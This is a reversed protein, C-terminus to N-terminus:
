LGDVIGVNKNELKAVQNQLMDIIEAMAIMRKNLSVIEKELIMYGRLHANPNPPPFETCDDPM